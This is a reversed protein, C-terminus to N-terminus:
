DLNRTRSYKKILERGDQWAKGVQEGVSWFQNDPMTLLFPDVKKVDPNGDTLCKEDAYINVIEAIFFYNSPLDIFQDMRCEINIPCEKIMPAASLERYYVEFLESKDNQAGSVIGAFDTIEVMNASPVNISFEKTALIADASANSKNVCIGMMPPLYNVRTLWGLAMFNVKGLLHTGLLTQTWPLCFLNKNKVVAKM